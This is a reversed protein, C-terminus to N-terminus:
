RPTQGRYVRCCFFVLVFLLTTEYDLGLYVGNPLTLECPQIPMTSDTAVTEPAAPNEGSLTVNSYSNSHGIRLEPM